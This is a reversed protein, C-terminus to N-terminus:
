VFCPLLAWEGLQNDKSGQEIQNDLNKLQQEFDQPYNFLRSSKM